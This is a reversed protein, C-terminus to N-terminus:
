AHAYTYMYTCKLMDKESWVFSNLMNQRIVSWLELIVHYFKGCFCELLGWENMWEDIEDVNNFKNAYIKKHIIMWNLIKELKERSKKKSGQIIYFRTAQKWINM